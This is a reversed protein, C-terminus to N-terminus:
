GDLEWWQKLLRALVETHQSEVPLDPNLAHCLAYRIAHYEADSLSVTPQVLHKVEVTKM